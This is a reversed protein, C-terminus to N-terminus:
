PLNLKILINMFHCTEIKIVIAGVNLTIVLGFTEFSHTCKPEFDDEEQEFLTRIDRTIRYM